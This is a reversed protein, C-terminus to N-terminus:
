ASPSASWSSRWAAATGRHVSVGKGRTVFGGIADPPVPKCCRALQTMLGDMGVVLIGSAGPAAKSKKTRAGGGAGGAGAGGRVAVQLPRLGVEDRGGRRVDRRAQAFGLQAALVGAQARRARAAIEKEVVARGAAITRRAGQRQVVAPDQAARALEQRLRAGPQALRAVPRRRRPSSRSASAARSRTELTVIAGDVRAGRCRHGLDSHLAYAFDIPTAGAALDIM